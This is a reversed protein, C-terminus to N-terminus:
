RLDGLLVALMAEEHLARNLTNMADALGPAWAVEQVKGALPPASPLRPAIQVYEHASMRWPRAGRAYLRNAIALGAIDFDGHYLVDVGEQILRDLVTLGISAPNGSFCFLPGRADSTIAAQLVQPNECAWAQQGPVGWREQGASVKWEQMTVHSALGAEARQRMMRAWPGDGPPRLGWVLLTGSVTDASVGIRLWLERRGPGTSPMPTGTALAAARLILLSAATGDDLGHADGACQSALQAIEWTPEPLVDSILNASLLTLARSAVAVTQAASDGSRTLLGTRRVSELLASVWPQASLGAAEVGAELAALASARSETRERRVSPRDILPGTLEVCVSILGRAAASRRLAADVSELKIRVNGTPVSAGLLGGVADAGEDDLNVSVTGAAVLGNRELRSRVAAWLPDLSQAALYRRVPGTLRPDDKSQNPAM